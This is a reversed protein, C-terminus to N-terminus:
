ESLDEDSGDNRALRTMGAFADTEIRSEAICRATGPEGNASTPTRRQEEEDVAYATRSEQRRLFSPPPFDIESQTVNDSSRAM